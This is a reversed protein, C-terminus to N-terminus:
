KEFVGLQHLGTLWDETHWTRVIKRDEFEHIDIAMITMTQHKAPFGMFTERQTGTIASRVIVKNGDQLIEEITVKLDPFTTTLQVLLHKAGERGTPQGPAAPIDVWNESLIRDILVPDKTNFAEYWLTVDKKYTNREEAHTPSCLLLGLFILLYTKMSGKLAERLTFAHEEVLQTATKMTM